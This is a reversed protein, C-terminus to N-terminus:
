TQLKSSYHHEINDFKLIINSFSLKCPTLDKAAISKFHVSVTSPRDPWAPFFAHRLHLINTQFLILDYNCILIIFFVINIYM